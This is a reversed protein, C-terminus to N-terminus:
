PWMDHQWLWFRIDAWYETWGYIVLPCVQSALVAVIGMAAILVAAQIALLLPKPFHANVHDRVQNLASQRERPESEKPGSNTGHDTTVSLVQVGQPAIGAFLPVFNGVRYSGPQLALCSGWPILSSHDVFGVEILQAREHSGVFHPLEAICDFSALLGSMLVYARVRSPLSAVRSGIVNAIGGKKSQIEQLPASTVVIEAHRRAILPRMM